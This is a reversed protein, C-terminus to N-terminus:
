TRDILREFSSSTAVTVVLVAKDGARNGAGDGVGDGTRDDSIARELRGGDLAHEAAEVPDSPLRLLGPPVRQRRVL